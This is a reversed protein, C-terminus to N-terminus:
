LLPRLSLDSHACCRFAAREEFNAAAKVCPAVSWGRRGRGGAVRLFDGDLGGLTYAVGGFLLDAFGARSLWGLWLFCRGGHCQGAVEALTM